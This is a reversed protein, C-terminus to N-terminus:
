FIRTKTGLHRWIEQLYDTNHFLEVQSWPFDSDNLVSVDPKSLDSETSFMYTQKNVGYLYGVDTPRSGAYPKIAVSYATCMQM